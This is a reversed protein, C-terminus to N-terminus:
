DLQLDHKIYIYVLGAREYVIRIRNVTQAMQGM